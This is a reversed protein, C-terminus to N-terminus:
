PSHVVLPAQQISRREGRPTSFLPQSLCFPAIFRHSIEHPSCARSYARESSFSGAAGGEAEAVIVV